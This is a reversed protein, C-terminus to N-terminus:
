EVGGDVCQPWLGVGAAARLPEPRREAVKPTAQAGRAADLVHLDDVADAVGIAELDLAEADVHPPEFLRQSRRGLSEVGIRRGVRELPRHALVAALQERTIGPLPDLPRAFVKTAPGEVGDGVHGFLAHAATIEAM